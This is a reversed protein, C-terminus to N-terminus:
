LERLSQQPRTAAVYLLNIETQLEERRKNRETQNLFGLSNAEKKLEEETIFDDSLTVEYLTAGKSKHATSVILDARGETSESDRLKKIYLPLDSRYKAVLGAYKALEKDKAEEIYDQLEKWSGFASIFPDRINNKKNQYLSLIDYLSYDGFLISNVGGVFHIHKVEEELLQDVAHSLISVNNRGIYAPALNKRRKDKPRLGIVPSDNVYDKNLHKEWDLIENARDAIGSHFRFSETLPLTPWDSLINFINISHRFGYINQSSDGVSIKRAKQNVFFSLVSGTTDQGEDQLIVDYDLVPDTLSYAKLYWDHVMPIDETMMWKWIKEAMDQIFLSEEPTVRLFDFPNLDRVSKAGSTLYINYFSVCHRAILFAQLPETKYLKKLQKDMEILTIPKLNQFEVKRSGIINGYALSHFSSVKLNEIREKRAKAEAEIKASKNYVFYFKNEKPREKCYSIVTTSKGTGARAKVLLSDGDFDIIRQQQETYKM